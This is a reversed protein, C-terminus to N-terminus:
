DAARSRSQWNWYKNARWIAFDGARGRLRLWRYALFLRSDSIPNLQKPDKGIVPMAIVYAEPSLAGAEYEQRMRSALSERQEDTLPHDHFYRAAATARTDAPRLIELARDPSIFEVQLEDQRRTDLVWVSNGDSITADFIMKGGYRQAYGKRPSAEVIAQALPDVLEVEDRAALRKGMAFPLSERLSRQGIVTRGTAYSESVVFGSWEAPIQDKLAMLTRELVLDSALTDFGFEVSAFIANGIKVPTLQLFGHYHGGRFVHYFFSNEILPTAWREPTLSRFEGKCAGGVCENTFVGKWLTEVRHHVPVFSLTEDGDRSGRGRAILRGDASKFTAVRFVENEMARGDRVELPLDTPKRMVSQLAIRLIAPSVHTSEARSTVFETAFDRQFFALVTDASGSALRAVAWPEDLASRVLDAAAARFDANAKLDDAFRQRNKRNTVQELRRGAEILIESSNAAGRKVELDQKWEEMFHRLGEPKLELGSGSLSTEVSFAQGNKWFRSLRETLGPVRDKLADLQQWIKEFQARSIKSGYLRGLKAYQVEKASRTAFIDRCTPAARAATATACHIALLLFLLIRRM